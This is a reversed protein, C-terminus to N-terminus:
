LNTSLWWHCTRWSSSYCQTVLVRRRRGFSRESLRGGTGTGGRRPTVLGVSWPPFLRYPDSPPRSVTNSDTGGGVPGRVTESPTRRGHTDLSDSSSSSDEGTRPPPSYSTGACPCSGPSTPSSRGPRTRRGTGAERRRPSRSRCTSSWSRGQRGIGLGVPGPCPLSNLHGRM